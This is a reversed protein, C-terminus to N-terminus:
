IENSKEAVLSRGLRLGNVTAWVSVWHRPCYGGAFATPDLPHCLRNFSDHSAIGSPLPLFTRLWDERARGFDEMDYAREGDVRLPGVAIVLLDTLRHCRGQTRRPDPFDDFASVLSVREPM